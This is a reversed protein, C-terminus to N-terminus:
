LGSLSLGSSAAAAQIKVVSCSQHAKRVAACAAEADARSMQSSRVSSPKGKTSPPVVVVDALVGAFKAKLRKAAAAAASASAYRGLEAQFGALKNVETQAQAAQPANPFNQLFSQYAAVTGASQASQWASAQELGTIGSQAEAVHAGNPFQQLYQQYAALTGASKASGWAQEDKLADIRNRAQQVRPDGPHREIFHQYAAVTGQSSAKQWDANPSSCAALAAAALICATCAVFSPIKM